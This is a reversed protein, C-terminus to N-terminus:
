QRQRRPLRVRAPIRFRGHGFEGLSFFLTTSSLALLDDLLEMQTQCLSEFERSVPFARSGGFFELDEEMRTLRLIGAPWREMPRSPM